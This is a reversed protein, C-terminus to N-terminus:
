GNLGYKSMTRLSPFMGKKCSNFLDIETNM